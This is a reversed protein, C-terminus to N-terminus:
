DMKRAPNVIVCRDSEGPAIRLPSLEPAKGLQLARLTPTLEYVRGDETEIEVVATLMKHGLMFGVPTDYLVALYSNFILKWRRPNTQSLLAILATAESEESNELLERLCEIAMITKEDVASLDVDATSVSDIVESNKRFEVKIKKSCEKREAEVADIAEAILEHISKSETM